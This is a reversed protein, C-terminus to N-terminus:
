IYYSCPQFRANNETDTYKFTMSKIQLLYLINQMYTADLVDNFTCDTM